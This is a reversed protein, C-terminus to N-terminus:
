IGAQSSSLPAATVVPTCLVYARVAAYQSIAADHLTWERPHMLRQHQKVRASWQGCLVCYESLKACFAKDQLPLRWNQASQDRFLPQHVLAVAATGATGSTSPETCPPVTQPIRCSHGLLEERAEPVQDSLVAVAGGSLCCASSGTVAICCKKLHKKLGEVRTFRRLCTKCTPMGDVGGAVYKDAALVGSQHRPQKVHHSRARHSRMIRVNLFYQGCDPCPVGTCIDELEPSTVPAQLLIAELAELKARFWDRTAPDACKALRRQLTGRLTQLPDSAELRRRLDSTSEHSLFAPSRSLARLSRNDFQVLRRAVTPTIGVAHLGYLLSSRVCAIHLRVRQKLRLRRSRLVRGLRHKCALAAQQRHAYTQQEFATYSAVVGVYVIRHVRPIDIPAHPTGLQLVPGQATRKTHAKLWRRAAGGRLKLIIRSKEMNLTMGFEKFTQFTARVCKIMFKLDSISTITWAFHTDDAFLTAAQAAWAESTRSVLVDYIHCTYLTFLLPSLACGQRVGKRMPFTGSQRKHTVTYVCQEHLAVILHQLEAPVGAHQLSARLAERPVEDFARSLDLSMM